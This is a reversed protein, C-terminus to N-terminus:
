FFCVLLLLLFLLCVCSSSSSFPEAELPLVYNQNQKKVCLQKQEPLRLHTGEPLLAYEEEEPHPSTGEELLFLHGRRSAYLTRGSMNNQVLYDRFHTDELLTVHTQQSPFTNRRSSHTTRSYSNRGSCSYVVDYTGRRFSSCTRRRSYYVLRQNFCFVYDEELLVLLHFREGPLVCLYVCSCSSFLCYVCVSFCFCLLLLCFLFFVFVCFFFCSSCFSSVCCFSSSCSSFCMFLLLRLLCIVIVLFMSLLICMRLVCVASSVYYYSYSSVFVDASSCSSFVVSSFFCCIYSFYLCFYLLFCVFVCYLYSLSM